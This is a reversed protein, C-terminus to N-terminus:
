YTAGYQNLKITTIKNTQSNTLDFSDSGVVYGSVDGTGAGFLLVNGPWTVNAFRVTPDLNVVFNSSDNPNYSLGRFLTYSNTEFHIGYASDNSMALSQQSKIDSILVDNATSQSTSPIVTSLVISSIAFIVALVGISVLLEVLTFANQLRFKDNTM